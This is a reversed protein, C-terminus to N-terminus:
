TSTAAPTPEIAPEPVHMPGLDFRELAEGGAGFATVATPIVNPPLMVAIATHELGLGSLSVVDVDISGGPVEVGIRRVDAGFIASLLIPGGHGVSDSMIPGIPDAADPAPGCSSAQLSESVVNGVCLDGTAIIWAAAHWAVAGHQGSGIEVVPGAPHLDSGPELPIHGPGAARPGM